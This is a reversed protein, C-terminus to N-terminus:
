APVQPKRNERVADEVLACVVWFNGAIMIEFFRDGFACSLAFAVIMGQLGVAMQRDFRTTATKVGKAALRWCMWWVALFAVLGGIGVEALMRLFTNHASDKVTIGLEEGISPLVEALGAFGIGDLPHDQVILLLSHWTNLREEAGGEIQTEDSDDSSTITNVVREKVYDPVWLPSTAMVILMFALLTRSTRAAVLLAGAAVAVLAGRSVSMFVGLGGAIALGWLAFRGFWSRFGFGMALAMVTFMALYTGLENAQGITGGARGRLNRGYLFTFGTEFAFGILVAALLRRRSPAGRSMALVGVYPTVSMLARFLALGSHGADFKMGTPFAAGRIVSLGALGLLIGLPAMLMGARMMPRRQLVQTFAFSFFITFFLVNVTNMGPVPLKPLLGLLPTAIPILLLGAQPLIVLVGIGSLGLLLKVLRATSQAFQYDLLVFLGVLTLAALSAGVVISAASLPRATERAQARVQRAVPLGPRGPATNM